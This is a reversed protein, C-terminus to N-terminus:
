HKSWQMAVIAYVFAGVPLAAEDFRAKPHHLPYQYGEERAGASLAVMVSPVKQSIYSFDESGGNRARMEGGLEKSSFASM